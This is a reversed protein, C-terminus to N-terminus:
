KAVAGVWLVAVLWGAPSADGHANQFAVDTHMALRSDTLPIPLVRLVTDRQTARHVVNNREWCNKVKPDSLARQSINVRCRCIQDATQQLTSFVKSFLHKSDKRPLSRLPTRGSCARRPAEQSRSFFRTATTRFNELLFANKANLGIKFTNQEPQQFFADVQWNCRGSLAEPTEKQRM